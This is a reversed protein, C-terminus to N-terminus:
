LTKTLIKSRSSYLLVTERVHKFIDNDSIFGLNYKRM